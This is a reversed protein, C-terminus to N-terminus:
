DASDGFEIGVKIQTVYRPDDVGDEVFDAGGHRTAVAYFQAAETSKRNLIAARALAAIGSGPLLHGYRFFRQRVELGALFQPM